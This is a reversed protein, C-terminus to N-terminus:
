VELLQYAEAQVPTPESVQDFTAEPPADAVRCTNKTQTALHTLLTRFSHLPLGMASTRTKKKAKASESPEAPLVPDREARATEVEEDAFLLSRWRRRMEWEVYYALLCLFVHTRVRPPVRHFIPRIQLDLGKCTRFAVEVQALRKYSRVADDANLRRRTESTRIIYIGDLQEERVINAEKRQWRFVGDGITLRFHKAVRFRNIRQGAKLAIDDRTMPHRRRRAVEAVLRQLQQETAQLLERRKRRREEALIPNFCAVLREGPFDPSTIEALNVTDFVSRQLHGADLLQRIASSRLASIWGLGPYRRLHEIQTDTLLGRDGVLVVRQLGFRKVLKNVQRPVTTPDATNGPFVDVAVPRGVADTLLGYVIIPLGKKKDRNHGFRALPCHRGHYYSSSVDCLILGRAAFHRRALRREIRPQRCHLWDLARYVEAPTADAIQLEDALTTDHWSRTAALKSGPALLRQAILALVLSRERCPRGGLLTELGLRQMTGLVAYVHGHPRSRVIRVAQQAPVLPQGQLSAQILQITSAPLHSLNGLNRHRVRRGVRYSQRLYYHVYTKGKHTRVIRAVHMRPQTDM